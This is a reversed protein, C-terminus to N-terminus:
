RKSSKNGNELKYNSPIEMIGYMKHFTFLNNLIQFMTKPMKMAPKPLNQGSCHHRLAQAPPLGPPLRAPRCISRKQHCKSIQLIYVFFSDAPIGIKTFVPIYEFLKKGYISEVHFEGSFPWFDCRTLIGALM